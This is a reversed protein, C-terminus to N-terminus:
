PLAQLIDALRYGALSIRERSVSRAQTGYGAPLPPATRDNASGRLITLQVNGNIKKEFRYAHRTAAALSEQSWAAVDTATGLEPLSSRPHEGQLQAANNFATRPNPPTSGFSKGLQGDWFSHLNVANPNGSESVFFLNGGRDGEPLRYTTTNILAACHLPQHLDGVLHILWSLHAARAQPTAGADRIVRQSERIGFLVDDDPAPEPGTGFDTQQVPYDVYHWAPHDFPNGSKRIEDPWTSARIFLYTGLDLKAPFGSKLRNFDQRWKAFDPHSRLIEMFRQQAAGPLQQYAMAAIAAHGPGSWAQAPGHITLLLLLAGLCRTLRKM